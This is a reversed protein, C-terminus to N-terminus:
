AAHAACRDDREEEEPQRPHGAALVQLRRERDIGAHPGAHQGVPQLEEDAPIRAGGVLHQQAQGHLGARHVFGLVLAPERVHELVHREVAGRPELRALQHAVELRKARPEARM